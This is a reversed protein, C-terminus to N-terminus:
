ELLGTPLDNPLTKNDPQEMLNVALGNPHASYQSSYRRIETPIQLDRRISTNPVYRPADVTIRLAKWQFRELIKINSTSATGWLQLGYTSIPKLITKYIYLKNSTALKSKQGLLWYMKTLSIGLQKRKHWTLRSDLHPGLYKVDEPPLQVSNIHVPPCTERRSALFLGSASHTCLMVVNTNTLPATHPPGQALGTCGVHRWTRTLKNCSSLDHLLDRVLSCYYPKSTAAQVHAAAHPGM